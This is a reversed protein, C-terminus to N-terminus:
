CIGFELDWCNVAVRGSNNNNNNDVFLIMYNHCLALYLIIRNVFPLLISLYSNCHLLSNLLSSFYLTWYFINKKTVWYLLLEICITIISVLMYLVMIFLFLLNCYYYLVCLLHVIFHFLYFLIILLCNYLQCTLLTGIWCLLPNIVPESPFVQVQFDEDSIPRRGTPQTITSQGSESRGNEASLFHLSKFM